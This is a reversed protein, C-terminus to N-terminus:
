ARHEGLTGGLPIWTELGSKSNQALDESLELKGKQILWLVTSGGFLFYGKEQGKDFKLSPADSSLSQAYASQVIKGVGLAGVEIMAVEGFLSHELMAIQRENKLFIAPDIELAVPNVSHYEGHITHASTLKGSIPFHYRHYDVPCLRCIILTGGHFAEALKESGLLVQLDIDIGKVKVKTKSSLTEFALYRGEAGACFTTPSTKFVRKGPKFKRTFFDNFSRYSVSEFESMDLSYDAIFKKIKSTSFSSDEYAGMLRNLWGSALIKDTIFFGIKNKYALDILATGYM